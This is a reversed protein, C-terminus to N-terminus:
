QRVAFEFEFLIDSSFLLSASSLLNALSNLVEGKVSM